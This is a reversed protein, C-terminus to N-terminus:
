RESEQTVRVRVGEKVKESELSVIVPDQEKLGDVIEAYQWNKIGIKVQVRRAVQDPGVVLVRQGEM